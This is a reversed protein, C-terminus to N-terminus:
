SAYRRMEEVDLLSPTGGGFYITEITQDKLENKRLILEIKFASLM